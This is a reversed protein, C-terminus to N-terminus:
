KAKGAKPQLQSVPKLKGCDGSVRTARMEMNYATSKGKDTRKGQMKVLYSTDSEFIAEVEGTTPPQTCVVSAAWRKATQTKITTKCSDDGLPIDNRKIDEEALCVRIGGNGTTAVGMSNMQDEIMKRQEPPMNALRAQMQKMAKEMDAGNPMGNGGSSKEVKMEWLGPKINPAEAQVVAALMLGAVAAGAQRWGRIEKM